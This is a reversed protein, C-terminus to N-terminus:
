AVICVACMYHGRNSSNLYDLFNVLIEDSCLTTVADYPSGRFCGDVIRHPGRCFPRARRSGAGRPGRGVGQAGPWGVAQPTCWPAKGPPYVSPGAALSTQSYTCVWPFLLCRREVFSKLTIRHLFVKRGSFFHGCLSQSLVLERGAQLFQFDWKLTSPM